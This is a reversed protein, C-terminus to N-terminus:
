SEFYASPRADDALSCDTDMLTKTCKHRQSAYISKGACSVLSQTIKSLEESGLDTEDRELNSSAINYTSAQRDLGDTEHVTINGYLLSDIM